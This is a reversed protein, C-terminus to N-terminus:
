LIVAESLLDEYTSVRFRSADSIRSLVDSLGKISPVDWPDLYVNLYAGTEEGMQLLTSFLGCYSEQGRHVLRHSLRPTNLSHWTDFVSFPHLPCVSLPFEVINFDKVVFPRGFSKTNTLWTSSSFAYGLEKLIGYIDPTFLNKFHPVRLGKPEYKLVKLCVEHCREIEQRKEDRPIFRFQRGPNLIENDPHSYTHNVIEHGAELILLHERPYKEIWHGVCAFSARINHAKLLKLVAPIAEVDKPYDCDFSLTVVPKEVRGNKTNHSLIGRLFAKPAIFTCLGAVLLNNHEAISNIM